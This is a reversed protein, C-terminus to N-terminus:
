SCNHGAAEEQINDNEPAKADDAPAVDTPWTAETAANTTYFLASFFSAKEEEEDGDERLRTSQEYTDRQTRGDM